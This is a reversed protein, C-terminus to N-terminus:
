TNTPKTRGPTDHLGFNHLDPVITKARLGSKPSCYINPRNTTRTPPTKTYSTNVHTNQTTESRTRGHSVVQSGFKHSTNMLRTTQPHSKYTTHTTYTHAEKSTHRTGRPSSLKQPLATCGVTGSPLNAPTAMIPGTLSGDSLHYLLILSISFICIKITNCQAPARHATYGLEDHRSIRAGMAPGFLAAM